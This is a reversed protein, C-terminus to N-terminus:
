KVLKISSKLNVNWKSNCYEAIFIGFRGKFLYLRIFEVKYLMKEVTCFVLLGTDILVAITCFRYVDCLYHTISLKQSELSRHTINIVLYQIM